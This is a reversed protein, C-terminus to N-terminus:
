RGIERSSSTALLIPVAAAHKQETCETDLIVVEKVVFLSWFPLLDTPLGRLSSLPLVSVRSSHYPVLRILVNLHLFLRALGDLSALTLGPRTWM